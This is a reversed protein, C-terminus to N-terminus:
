TNGWAPIRDGSGTIYLHTDSVARTDGQAIIRGEAMAIIEDCYEALLDM